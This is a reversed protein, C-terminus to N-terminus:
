RAAALMIKVCPEATDDAIKLVRLAQGNIVVQSRDTIQMVVFDARLIDAECDVYLKEGNLELEIMEAAPTRLCPMTWGGATIKDGMQLVSEDFGRQMATYYQSM